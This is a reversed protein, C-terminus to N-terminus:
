RHVPNFSGPFLLCGTVNAAPREELTEDAGDYVLFNCSGSILASIAGELTRRTMLRTSVRGAAWLTV